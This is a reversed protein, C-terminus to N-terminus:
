FIFVKKEHFRSAMLFTLICEPTSCYTATVLSAHLPLYFLDLSLGRSSVLPLLSRDTLLVTSKYWLNEIRWQPGGSASLHQCMASTMVTATRRVNEMWENGEHFPDNIKVREKIHLAGRLVSEDIIGSYWHCKSWVGDVPPEGNEKSRFPLDISLVRILAPLVGKWESFFVTILCLINLLDSGRKHQSGILAQENCVCDVACVSAWKYSSRRYKISVLTCAYHCNFM